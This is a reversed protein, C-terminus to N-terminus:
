VITRVSCALTEPSLSASLDLVSKDPTLEACLSRFAETGHGLVVLDAGQILTQPADVLLEAIHEVRSMAFRLNSGVLREVCVCPDYITVGIGKGLCHEVLEVLPSERLDDTDPKFALGLFGVRKAGSESIVKKAAEIHLANSRPVSALLPLEVHQDRALHNLAEIDKPLCSGGYAFGPRLYRGSLNLPADRMFLNMVEAADVNMAHCLRGVENGFVVKTAHWANCVSKLLETEELGAVVFEGEQHGFLARLPAAWEPEACGVLTLASHLFDQVASGERLFEPNVCVTVGQGLRRGSTEQVIQMCRRTTGLGVTSRIVVTHPPADPHQALAEGIRACVQEVVETNLRGTRDPPTGVCVFSLAGHAIAEEPSQTARLCGSAHGDAFLRDLEPEVIPTEGRSVMAIREENIDVGLVRHGARALCGSM